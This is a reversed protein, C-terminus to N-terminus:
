LVRPDAPSDPWPPPQRYHDPVHPTALPAPPEQALPLPMRGIAAITRQADWGGYAMGVVPALGAVERKVLRRVISRVMRKTIARGGGREGSMARAVDAAVDDPVVPLGARRLMHARLSAAVYAEVALALLGVVMAAPVAAPLASGFSLAAALEDLQEVAAAGAGAAGVLIRASSVNRIPFPHRVFLPTVVRLVHDVEAELVALADSLSRVKRLRALSGLLEGRAGRPLLRLTRGVAGGQRVAGVQARRRPKHMAM